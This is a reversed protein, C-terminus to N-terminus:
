QETPEAEELTNRGLLQNVLCQQTAATALLVVAVLLVVAGVYLQTGGAVVLAFGVVALIAGLGVRVIRDLGGVNREM